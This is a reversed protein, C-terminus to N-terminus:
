RAHYSGGLETPVSKRAHDDILSAVRKANAVWFTHQRAQNLLYRERPSAVGMYTMVAKETPHEPPIGARIVGVKVESAQAESLSPLFLSAGELMQAVLQDSHDHLNAIKANEETEQEGSSVHHQYSIPSYTLYSKSNAGATLFIFNPYGFFFSRHKLSPPVDLTAILAIKNEIFAETQPHLNSSLDLRESNRWAANVVYDFAYTIGNETIIECPIKEHGPNIHSIATDYYVHINAASALSNLLYAKLKPWDFMADMTEIIADVADLNILSQYPTQDQVLRYFNDVQGFVANREDAAVLEAYANKMGEFQALVSQVSRLSDKKIVYTIRHPIAPSATDDRVFFDDGTKEKLYRILQISANLSIVAEIPTFHFFGAGFCHSTADSSEGLLETTKEFLFVEYGQEALQLATGVGAVGAGIVGVKLM